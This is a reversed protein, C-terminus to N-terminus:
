IYEIGIEIEINQKYVNFNSYILCKKAPTYGIRIALISSFSQILINMQVPIPDHM